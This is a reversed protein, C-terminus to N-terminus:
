GLRSFVIFDTAPISTVGLQRLITVLQGRHYSSHNFVHQLVADLPDNCLDGKLNYFRITPMSEMTEPLRAAVSIFQASSVRWQALLEKFTGSFEMGRFPPKEQGQIRLLWVDEAGWVHLVTKRISPFSSEIHQDIQEEGLLSLVEIMRENAWANYRAMRTLLQKM